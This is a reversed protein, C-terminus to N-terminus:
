ATLQFVVSRKDYDIGRIVRGIHHKNAFFRLLSLVDWKRLQVIRSEGEESDMPKFEAQYLLNVASGTESQRIEVLGGTLVHKSIDWIEMTSRPDKFGNRLGEEELGIIFQSEKELM